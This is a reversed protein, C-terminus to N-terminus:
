FGALYALGAVLVMGALATGTNYSIGPLNPVIEFSSYPSYDMSQIESWVPPNFRGPGPPGRTAIATTGVTRANNFGDTSPSSMGHLVLQDSLTFSVASPPSNM